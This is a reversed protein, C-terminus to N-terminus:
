RLRRLKDSVEAIVKKSEDIADYHTGLADIVTAKSAFKGGFMLRAKVEGSLVDGLTPADGEHDKAAIIKVSEMTKQLLEKKEPLTVTREKKLRKRLGNVRASQRM